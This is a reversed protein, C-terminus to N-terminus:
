YSPDQLTTSGTGPIREFRAMVHSSDLQASTSITDKSRRWLCTHISKGRRGRCAILVM